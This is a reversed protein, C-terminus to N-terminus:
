KPASRCRCRSWDRHAANATAVIQEVEAVTQEPYEAIRDGTAPNTSIFNM